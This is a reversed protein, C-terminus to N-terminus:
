YLLIRIWSLTAPSNRREKREAQRSFSEDTSLYHKVKLEGDLTGMHDSQPFFDFIIYMKLADFHWAQVGVIFSLIHM